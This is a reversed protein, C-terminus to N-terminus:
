EKREKMQEEMMIGFLRSILWGKNKCFEKYREYIDEDVSSAINNSFMTIVNMEYTLLQIYNNAKTTKNTMQLVVWRWRALLNSASKARRKVTTIRPQTAIQCMNNEGKESQNFLLAVFLHNKIERQDNVIPLFFNGKFPTTASSYTRKDRIIKSYQSLRNM